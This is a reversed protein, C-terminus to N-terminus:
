YESIGGGPIVSDEADDAASLEGSVNEGTGTATGTYPAGYGTLSLQGVLMTLTLVVSLVRTMRRKMAAEEMRTM